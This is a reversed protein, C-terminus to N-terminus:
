RPLLPRQGTSSGISARQCPDPGPDPFVRGFDPFWGLVSYLVWIAVKSHDRRGARDDFRIFRGPLWGRDCLVLVYHGTERALSLCPFPGIWM